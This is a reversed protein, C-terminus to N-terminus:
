ERYTRKATLHKVLRRLRQPVHAHGASSNTRHDTNRDPGPDIDARRTAPHREAKSYALRGTHHNRDPGGRKICM